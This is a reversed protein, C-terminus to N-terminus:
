KIIIAGNDCNTIVFPYNETIKEGNIKLDEILINDFKVNEVVQNVTIRPMENAEIIEKDCYVNINKFTVDHIKTRNENGQTVGEDGEPFLNAWCGTRFRVNSVGIIGPVALKDQLNYQMEEEAHYMAPTDFSNFEVNINEFTIGHVEAWDGNQIDLATGIVRIVDCNKFTINKYEDAATELGIELCKGWDCWCVCNEVLVNNFSIDKYDDLGKLVITDDFSHIFSNIIKVNQSNMIDIGDTNYKWQGFVKIGNFEVNDCGFATVCWTCSNKFGLGLVKVNKCRDFRINGVIANDVVGEQGVCPTVCREHMSSDIIGNGYVKIDTSDKAYIQGLIIANKDAYLSQGSKLEIRGAFHIGEGFYYTPKNECPIYKQNFIYLCNIHDDAMLVYFGFDPLTFKVKNGNIEAKVNKSYPKIMIRNFKEPITVELSIKGNSTINIYHAPATQSYPRQFGPWRRNFPYKSIRAKYVPTDIGDVLVKYYDSKIESLMQNKRLEIIEKSSIAM